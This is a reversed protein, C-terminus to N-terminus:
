KDDFGLRVFSRANPFVEEVKSRLRGLGILLEFISDEEKPFHSRVAGWAAISRDLGILAVKASGDSDKPYEKLMEPM